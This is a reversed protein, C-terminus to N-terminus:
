GTTVEVSSREAAVTAIRAAIGDLVCELGVDFSDDATMQAAEAFVRILTPYDGRSVVDLLYQSTHSRREDDTVADARNRAPELLELQVYGYVYSLVTNVMRTMTAADLGTGAVAALISESTRLGNPGCTTRTGALTRLWPHNRATEKTARAIARLDSRWDAGDVGVQPLVIEGFAEDLMLDLLDERTLYAQLRDSSVGVKTAVRKVSVAYLSERDAIEMAAAAIRAPEVVAAGPRGELAPREWILTFASTTERNRM